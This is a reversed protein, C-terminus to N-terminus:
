TGIEASPSDRCYRREEKLRDGDEKNEYRDVMRHTVAHDPDDVIVFDGRIMYGAEDDIDGGIVVSGKPNGLANQTKRATRDSIFLIDDGELMFWIPVSHPYGDRGITTLRAILLKQLFKRAASDFM